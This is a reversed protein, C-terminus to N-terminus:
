IDLWSYSLMLSLDLLEEVSKTSLDGGECKITCHKLGFTHNAIALGQRSEPTLRLTFDLYRKRKVADRVFGLTHAAMTDICQVTIEGRNKYAGYQDCEMGMPGTDVIDTRAIDPIKTSRVLMCFEPYQHCELEFEYGTIKEGLAANDQYADNLMGLQGNGSSSFTGQSLLAARAAEDIVADGIAGAIESGIGNGLAGADMGSTPSYDDGIGGGTVTRFVRDVANGINGGGSITQYLSGAIKKGNSLSILAM